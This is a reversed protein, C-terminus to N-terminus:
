SPLIPTWERLSRISVVDAVIYPDAALIQRVAAEDPCDYVLLAGSDDAWPGASVLRGEAHLARLYDRHAPRVALRRNNEGDFAFELVFTAM